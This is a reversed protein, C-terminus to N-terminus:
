VLHHRETPMGLAGDDDVVSVHAATVGLDVRRAAPVGHGVEPRGVARLHVADADVAVPRQVVAVDDAEAGCVDPVLGGSGLARSWSRAARADMVSWSRPMRLS